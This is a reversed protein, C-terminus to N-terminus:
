RPQVPVELPEVPQLEATQPQTAVDYAAGGAMALFAAGFIWGLTLFVAM